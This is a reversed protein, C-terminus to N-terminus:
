YELRKRWYLNYNVIYIYSLYNQKVLLFYPKVRYFIPAAGM